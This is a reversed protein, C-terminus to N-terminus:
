NRFYKNLYYDEKSRMVKSENITKDKHGCLHLIGHFMVRHLEKNIHSKYIKANDVIRDVSIYIEGKKYINSESLDFTIIDTYYNHNLYTKNINLLYSDSCFIFTLESIKSKEKKCLSEIFQKLKTRNRLSTNKLFHFAIEM